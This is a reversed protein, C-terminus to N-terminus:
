RIQSAATIVVNSTPLHTLGAVSSASVAVKGIEDVIDQGSIVKGFVAYGDPNAASGFDLDPNDVLNIYFESTASNPEGTRAMAITYKLNKLGNNSELVIAPLTPPKPTPGAIYGGAQAVFNAVVRHFLTNRYFGANVYALYNDVTVRAAVPDLEVVFSGSRLGQGVTMSVQPAPVDVRLSALELGDATRVRPIMLGLGSVRCTFQQLLDTGGSVRSVEGCPGEVIVKFDGKTLASGNVSITM